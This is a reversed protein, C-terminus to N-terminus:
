LPVTKTRFDLGNQLFVPTERFNNQVKKRTKGTKQSKERQLRNGKLSLRRDLGKLFFRAQFGVTPKKDTGAQAMIPGHVSCYNMPFHATLFGGCLALGAFAPEISGCNM